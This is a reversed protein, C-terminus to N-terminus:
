ERKFVIISYEVSETVSEEVRGITARIADVIGSASESAHEQICEQICEAGLSTGEQIGLLYVVDSLVVFVDGREFKIPDGPNLEVGDFVGLPM